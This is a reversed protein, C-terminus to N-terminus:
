ALLNLVHPDTEPRHDPRNSGGVEADRVSRAVLSRWAGVPDSPM